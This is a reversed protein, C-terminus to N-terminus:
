RRSGVSSSVPVGRVLYPVWPWLTLFGCPPNRRPGTVGAGGRSEAGGVMGGAAGLVLGLDAGGVLGLGVRLELGVWWSWDWALGVGWGRALGAGGGAGAGGVLGTQDVRGLERRSSSCGGLRPLPFSALGVAPAGATGWRGAAGGLGVWAGRPLRKLRLDWAPIPLIRCGRWAPRCVGDHGDAGGAGRACVSGETGAALMKVSKNKGM